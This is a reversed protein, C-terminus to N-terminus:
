SKCKTPLGWWYLLGCWLMYYAFDFLLVRSYHLQSYQVSVFTMPASFTIAALLIHLFGPLRPLKLAGMIKKHSLKIMVMLCVTAIMIALKGVGDDEVAPVGNLVGLVWAFGLSIPKILMVLLWVHLILM